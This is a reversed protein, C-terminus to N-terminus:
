NVKDFATAFDKALDRLGDEILQKIIVPNRGYGGWTNEYTPVVLVKNGSAAANKPLAQLFAMRVTISKAVESLGSEPAKNLTVAFRLVPLEDTPGQKPKFKGAFLYPTLAAVAEESSIYGKAVDDVAVLVTANGAGRLSEGEDLADQLVVGKNAFPGLTEKATLQNRLEKQQRTPQQARVLMATTSLLLLLIRRM